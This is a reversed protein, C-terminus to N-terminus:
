PSDDPGPPHTRYDGALPTPDRPQARLPVLYDRIGGRVREVDERLRVYDFHDRGQPAVRAAQGALRDILELQRILAALQEHEPTDAALAPSLGSAALLAVACVRRAFLLSRASFM